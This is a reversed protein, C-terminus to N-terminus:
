RLGQVWAGEPYFPIRPESNKLPAFVRGPLLVDVSRIRTQLDAAQWAFHLPRLRYHASDATPTDWLYSDKLSLAGQFKSKSPLRELLVFGQSSRQRCKTMAPLFGESVAAFQRKIRDPLTLLQTCAGYVLWLGWCDIWRGLVVPTLSHRVRWFVCVCLCHSILCGPEAGSQPFLHLAKAHPTAESHLRKNAWGRGAAAKATANSSLTRPGSVISYLTLTMFNLLLSLRRGPARKFASVPRHV